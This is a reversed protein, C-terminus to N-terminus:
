RTITEVLTRPARELVSIIWADKRLTFRLTDECAYIESGRKGSEEEAFPQWKRYTAKVTSGSVQSLTLDTVGYLMEDEILPPRGEALWEGAPVLGTNGEVALRMRSIVFRFMAEDVEQKAIKRDACKELFQHDLNNVGDYFMGAVEMPTKGLTVPPEFFGKLLSIVFWLIVALGLASGLFVFKYRQLFYKVSFQKDLKKKLYDANRKKEEREADPVPATWGGALWTELGSEWEETDETVGSRDLSKEVLLAPGEKLDPIVLRLPLFRGERMKEHIVSVDPEKDSSSSEYPYKGSLLRYMLVGFTFALAASGKRDPHRHYCQYQVRERGPMTELVKDMLDDPFFVVGGERGNEPELFLVGNLFFTNRPTGSDALKRLARVLRLLYPLSEAPPMSLTESLLVGKMLPFSCYVNGEKERIGTCHIEEAGSETVAVCKRSTPRTLSFNRTKNSILIGLYPGEGSEIYTFGATHTNFTIPM